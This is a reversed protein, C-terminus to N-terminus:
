LWGGGEVVDTPRWNFKEHERGRDGQSAPQTVGDRLGVQLPIFKEDNDIYKAYYDIDEPDSNLDDPENVIPM